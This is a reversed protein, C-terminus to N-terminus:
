IEKDSVAKREAWRAKNAASIKARTEPSVPRGILSASLKARVEPRATSARNAATNRARYEPDAWRAKSAKGQRERENPDAYFAQSRKRMKDRSEPSAFAAKAAASRQARAEPRALAAKQAESLRQREAPDAFRAKQIASLKARYEPSKTAARLAAVQKARAQANAWRAKSALGIKVRTQSSPSLRRMGDGGATQNALTHLGYRAITEIEFDLAERENGTELVLYRQVEGGSKWIKRIIRCKHCGHGSRAESEHDLLRRGQGKGVYFPSGDPRALVYVYFRPSAITGMDIEVISQGRRSRQYRQGVDINYCVSLM